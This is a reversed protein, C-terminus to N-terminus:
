HKNKSFNRLIVETYFKQYDKQDKHQLNLNTRASKNLTEIIRNKLDLVDRTQFLITGNPRTVINSAIVPKGLFLAERVTLADGDTNTPRLVIDSKEILKVFSLNENILLFNDSLNYKKIISQYYLYTEKYKEISSVIYVLCIKYGHDILQATVDICLDLGYLDQGNNKKLQWANACIISKGNKKKEEIWECVSSPLPPEEKLNPPIFAPQLICKNAPLSLRELIDTNVTIITNAFKFFFEDFFKSAPTPNLPYSHITLIIKKFLLKGIIIHIIKLIKGGSHIFILDSWAVLNFYHFIKLSRLNFYKEKVQHSEDIFKLDFKNEILSSLRKLHMSVGGLPPPMPGILVVRVKRSKTLIKM